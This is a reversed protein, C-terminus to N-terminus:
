EKEEGGERIRLHESGHPEAALNALGTASGWPRFPYESLCIPHDNEHWSPQLNNNCMKWGTGLINMVIVFSTKGSSAEHGTKVAIGNVMVTVV